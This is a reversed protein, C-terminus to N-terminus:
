FFRVAFLYSRLSRTFSTSDSQSFQTQFIKREKKWIEQDAALLHQMQKVTKTQKNLYAKVEMIIDTELRVRDMWRVSLSDVSWKSPSGLSSSTGGLAGGSSNVALPGDAKRHGAASHSRQKEKRYSLYRVESLDQEPEHEHEPESLGASGGDGRGGTGTATGISDRDGKEDDDIDHSGRHIPDVPEDEYESGADLAISAGGGVGNALNSARVEGRSPNEDDSHPLSGAADVDVGDM